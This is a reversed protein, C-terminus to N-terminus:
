LKGLFAGGKPLPSFWGTYSQTQNASLGVKQRNHSTIDFLGDGNKLTGENPPHIIPGSFLM